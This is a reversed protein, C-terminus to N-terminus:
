LQPAQDYRTFQILRTVFNMDGDDVTTRGDRLAHARALTRLIVHPSFEMQKGTFLARPKYENNQYKGRLPVWGINVALENSFVMLIDAQEQSINVESDPPANIKKPQLPMGGIKGEAIAKQIKLRTMLSYDYNIPLFRRSFGLAAWKKGFGSYIERTMASIIAIPDHPTEKIQRGDDIRITGESMASLLNGITLHLTSQRHSLVINFDPIIIFRMKREKDAVLLQQLGM